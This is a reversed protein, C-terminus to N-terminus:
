SLLFGYPFTCDVSREGSAAGAQDFVGVFLDSRDTLAALALQPDDFAFGVLLDEHALFLLVVGHEAVDGGLHVNEFGDQGAVGADDVEVVRVVDLTVAAQDQVKLVAPAAVQVAEEPRADRFSEQPAAEGLERVREGEEVVAVVAGRAIGVGRGAVPLADDVAVDLGFVDEEAAAGRAPVGQGFDHEPVEAERGEVRFRVVSAARLLPDPGLDGQQGLLVIDPAHPGDDVRQRM